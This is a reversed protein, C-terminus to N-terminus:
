HLSWYISLIILVSVLERGLTMELKSASFGDCFLRATPFSSPARQPKHQMQQEWRWSLTSMLSSPKYSPAALCSSFCQFHYKPNIGQGRDTSIEQAAIGGAPGTWPWASCLGPLGVAEPPLGRGESEMPAKRIATSPTSSAMHVGHLPHM